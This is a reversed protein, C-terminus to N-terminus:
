THLPHPHPQLWSLHVGTHREAAASGEVVCVPLLSCAWTGSAKAENDSAGGFLFARGRHVVMSFSSRTGPAM